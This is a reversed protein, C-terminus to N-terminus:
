FWIFLLIILIISYWYKRINLFEQETSENLDAIAKEKTKTRQDKVVTLPGGEIKEEKQRMGIEKERREASLAEREARGDM